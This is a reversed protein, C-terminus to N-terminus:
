GNVFTVIVEFDQSNDISITNQGKQLVVLKKSKEKIKYNHRKEFETQIAKAMIPDASKSPADFFAFTYSVRSLNNDYLQYDVSVKGERFNFNKFSSSIPEKDDELSFGTDESEYKLKRFFSSNAISAFNKTTNVDLLGGKEFLEDIIPKTDLYSIYALRIDAIYFNVNSFQPNVVYEGKKNIFGIKEGSKVIAFNSNFPLAGDFQPNIVMTGKDDIFGWKENQMVPALGDYYALVREYQMNVVIKGTKDIFGWNLDDEDDGNADESKKEVVVARGENFNNVYFFQPNIVFKGTKDIFGFKEGKKVAALGESFNLVEDFQANILIEGQKDLFGYKFNQEEEDKSKDMIGFAALGETFISLREYKPEVVYKGTKDIFGEKDNKEVIALGERFETVKDANKLTFIEKGLKDICTIFGNYPTVFALGESFRTASVYKPVIVYKGTTDIYGYNGENDEVLALGEIFMEASKFQPNIVYNGKPNVYGWNEGM